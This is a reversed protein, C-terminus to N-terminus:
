GFRSFQFQTWNETGDSRGNVGISAAALYALDDPFKQADNNTNTVDSITIPCKYFRSGEKGSINRHAWMWMCRSGCRQQDANSPEHFGRYIYATASPIELAYPIEITGDDSDNLSKYTYIRRSPGEIFKVEDYILCKGPTATIIRDSLWPYAQQTDDPNFELFWYAFQQQDTPVRRCWYDYKDRSTLVEAIDTYTGCNSGLTLQGYSHALGQRTAEQKSCAQNHVYCGLNPAIVTGPTVYTHKYDWGSNFDYTM